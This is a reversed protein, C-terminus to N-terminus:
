GTSTASPSLTRQTPSRPCVVDVLDGVYQVQPFLIHVLDDGGVVYPAGDVGLGDGSLHFVM